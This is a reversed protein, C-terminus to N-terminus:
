SVLELSVQLKHAFLMMDYSGESYGASKVETMMSEMEGATFLRDGELDQPADAAADAADNKGSGGAGRLVCTFYKVERALKAM